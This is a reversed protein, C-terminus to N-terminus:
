WRSLDSPDVAGIPQMPSDTMEGLVVTLPDGHRQSRTVEEFLREMMHRQTFWTDSDEALFSPSLMEVLRGVQRQCDELVVKRWSLERQVDCLQAAQQLMVHLLPPHKGILERPLWHQLAAKPDARVVAAPRDSLVVVAAPWSAITQAGRKLESEPVQAGELLVV